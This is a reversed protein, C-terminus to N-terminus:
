SPAMLCILRASSAKASAVLAVVREVIVDDRGLVDEGLEHGGQVEFLPADERLVEEAQVGEHRRRSSSPFRFFSAAGSASTFFSSPSSRSAHSSIEVRLPSSSFVLGAVPTLIAPQAIRLAACSGTRRANSYASPLSSVIFWLSCFDGDQLAQALHEQALPLLELGVQRQQLLSSFEM